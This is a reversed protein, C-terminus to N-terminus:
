REELETISPAKDTEFSVGWTYKGLAGDFQYVSVKPMVSTTIMRGLRFAFSAQSAIFLHIEELDPHKARLNACHTYCDTAIHIQKENSNLSDPRAGKELCLMYSKNFFKDPLQKEVIDVSFPLIM